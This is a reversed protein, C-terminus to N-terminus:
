KAWWYVMVEMRFNKKGVTVTISCTFYNLLAKAICFICFFVFMFEPDELVGPICHLHNNCLEHSGSHWARSWHSLILATVPVLKRMSIHHSVAPRSKWDVNKRMNVRRKKLSETARKPRGSAWVQKMCFYVYEFKFNKIKQKHNLTLVCRSIHLTLTVCPIIISVLSCALVELVLFLM